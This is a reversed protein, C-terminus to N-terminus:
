PSLRGGFVLIVEEVLADTLRAGDLRILPLSLTSLWAQHRSRSRGPLMGDDYGAAWALFDRHQAYMDGGPTIRDGFRDFERQRLRELRIPTAAEMYIVHTATRLLELGWDGVAGSLVWQDRALEEVLLPPDTPLWYYDDVDFVPAKLSRGLARGLTTVGSGSAGTIHIRPGDM